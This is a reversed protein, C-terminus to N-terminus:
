PRENLFANVHDAFLETYQDLFGHNADPYIRLHADPLHDVLLQSNKTHMMTDNGGVAVFTPQTIGALRNLKSAHRRARREETECNGDADGDDCRRREDDPWGRARRV